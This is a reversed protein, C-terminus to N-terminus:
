PSDQILIWNNSLVPTQSFPGGARDVARTAQGAPEDRPLGVVEILTAPRRIPL